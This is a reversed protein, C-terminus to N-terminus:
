ISTHQMEPGWLYIMVVELAPKIQSINAFIVQSSANLNNKMIMSSINGGSLEDRSEVKQVSEVFGKESDIGIRSM